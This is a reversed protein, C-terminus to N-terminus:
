AIDSMNSLRLVSHIRALLTKLWRDGRLILKQADHNTMNASPVFLHIETTM